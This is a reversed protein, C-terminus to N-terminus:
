PAIPRKSPSPTTALLATAAAICRGRGLAQSHCQLTQVNMLRGDDSGHSIHPKGRPTRFSTPPSSAASLGPLSAPPPPTLEPRSFVGGEDGVFTAFTPRSIRAASLCFACHGQVSAASILGDTAFLAPRSIKAASLHLSFLCADSCNSATRLHRPSPPSPQADTGPPPLRAEVAAGGSSAPPLPLRGRRRAPGLDAPRAPAAPRRWHPSMSPPSGTYLKIPLVHRVWGVLNLFLANIIRRLKSNLCVMFFFICAHHYGRNKLPM